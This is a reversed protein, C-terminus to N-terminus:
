KGLAKQQLRRQTSKIGAASKAGGGAARHLAEIAKKRREILAAGGGKNNRKDNALLLLALETAPELCRDLRAGRGPWARKANEIVRTAEEKLEARVAVLLAERATKRTAFADRAAAQRHPDVYTRAPPEELIGDWEAARPYPPPYVMAALGGWRARTDKIFDVMEEIHEVLTAAAQRDPHEGDLGRLILGVQRIKEMPRTFALEVWKPDPDDDDSWGPAFEVLQIGGGDLDRFTATPPAAPRPELRAAYSELVRALLRAEAAAKRRTETSPKKEDAM